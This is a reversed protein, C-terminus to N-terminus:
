ACMETEWARAKLHANSESTDHRSNFPDINLPQKSEFVSWPPRLLDFHMSVHSVSHSFLISPTGRTEVAARAGSESLPKHFPPSDRTTAAPRARLRVDLQLGKILWRFTCFVNRSVAVLLLATSRALDPSWFLWIMLWYKNLLDPQNTWAVNNLQLFM